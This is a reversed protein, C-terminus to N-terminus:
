ICASNGDVFTFQSWRSASGSGGNQRIDMRYPLGNLQAVTPMKITAAFQVGDLVPFGIFGGTSAWLNTVPNYFLTSNTSSNAMSIALNGIGAVKGTLTYVSEAVWAQQPLTLVPSAADTVQPQGSFSELFAGLSLTGNLTPKRILDVVDRNQIRYLGYYKGDNVKYVRQGICVKEITKGNASEIYTQGVQIKDSTIDTATFVPSGVDKVRTAELLPICPFSTPTVYVGYIRGTFASYFRGGPRITFHVMQPYETLNTGSMIGPFGISVGKSYQELYTTNAYDRAQISWAGPGVLVTITIEASTTLGQPTIYYYQNSVQLCNGYKDSLDSAAIRVNINADLNVEDRSAFVPQVDRLLAFGNSSYGMCDYRYKLGFNNVESRQTGVSIAKNTMAASQAVITPGVKRNRQLWTAENEKSRALPVIGARGCLEQHALGHGNEACHVFDGVFTGAAENMVVTPYYRRALETPTLVDGGALQHWDVVTVHPENIYSRMAARVAKFAAYGPDNPMIYHGGMEILLILPINLSRTTSVIRALSPIFANNVSNIGSGADNVTWGCIFLDPKYNPTVNAFMGDLANYGVIPNGAIQNGTPTRLVTMNALASGGYSADFMQIGPQDLCYEVVELYAFGSAPPRFEITHHGEAFSWSSENNVSQAANCNITRSFAGDIWVDFSGGDIDTSYRLSFRSGYGRLTFATSDVDGRLRTFSTGGYPQKKWGSFPSDYNGGLAAMIVMVNGSDGYQKTLAAIFERTASSSAAEISTGGHYIRFTKSAAFQLSSGLRGGLNDPLHNIGFGGTAAPYDLNPAFGQMGVGADSKTPDALQQRLTADGVLKLKPTDTVWTSTTFPIAASTGRYDSGMYTVVQTPRIINIGAVYPIPVEFASKDLFTQFSQERSVQAVNFQSARTVQDAAFITRFEGAAQGAAAHSEEAWEKSSKASPDTSSPHTGEAWVRSKEIYGDFHEEVAPMTAAIAADVSSEALTPIEALVGDLRRFEPLHNYVRKVTEYATGIMKEVLVDPGGTPDFVPRM